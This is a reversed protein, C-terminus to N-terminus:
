SLAEPAGSLFKENSLKAQVSKLFGEQYSIEQIIKQSEEEKNINQSLTVYAEHTGVVLTLKGESPATLMEM